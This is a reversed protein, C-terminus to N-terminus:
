CEEATNLSPGLLIYLGMVSELILTVLKWCWNLTQSTLRADVHAVTWLPHGRVAPVELSGHGDGIGAPDPHGTGRGGTPICTM